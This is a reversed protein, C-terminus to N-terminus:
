PGTSIARVVFSIPVDAGCSATRFSHTSRPSSRIPKSRRLPGQCTAGQPRRKPENGERCSRGTGRTSTLGGHIRQLNQAYQLAQEQGLRADRSTKKAEIVAAPKGKLLLGYDAFQHGAYEKRRERVAATRGGDGVYIDLEQIIQSPDEVNWGALGLRRDILQQRTDSESYPELAM